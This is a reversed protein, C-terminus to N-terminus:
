ETNHQLQRLLAIGLRDTIMSNLPIWLKDCVEIDLKECCSTIAHHSTAMLKDDFEKFITEQKM